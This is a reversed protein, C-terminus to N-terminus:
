AIVPRYAGVALAASIDDYEARDIPRFRVRDGARLLIPDAARPDYISLPTRGLVWFGGPSEVSYICCQTGGIGISGPPTRTRPTELRAITLEPPMGTMYPQGPAFGLFYVLYEAESHLRVLESAALGLREAAAALEFGLGPDDYCCPLEVHRAPPLVASSAQPVLAAIAECLGDYSVARPDYYVLLSRFSPVTETVGVLHKESILFDLARVRESVAASIEEELEVAVAVDGAPLFSVSV